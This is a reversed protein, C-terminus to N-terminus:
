DNEVSGIVTRHADIARQMRYLFEVEDHTIPEVNKAKSYIVKFDELMYGLNRFMIEDMMNTDAMYDKNAEVIKLLSNM